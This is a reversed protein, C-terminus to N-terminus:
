GTSPAADGGRRRLFDLIAANTAQPNDEHMAHSADLIEVREFDPLLEELRDTLRLLFAPSHEGTLLLTPARVSRVMADDIPPFMDHLMGARLTSVNGRLMDWQAESLREFADQGLATV